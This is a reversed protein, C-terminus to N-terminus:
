IIQELAAVERGVFRNRERRETTFIKAKSKEKLVAM